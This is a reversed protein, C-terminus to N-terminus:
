LVRETLTALLFTAKDGSFFHMVFLGNGLAASMCSVVEHAKATGTVGLNVM